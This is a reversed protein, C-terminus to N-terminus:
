IHTPVRKVIEAVQDGIQRRALQSAAGARKSGPALHHEHGNPRIRVLMEPAAM